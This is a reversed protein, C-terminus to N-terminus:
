GDTRFEGSRPDVWLHLISEGERDPDALREAQDIAAARGRDAIYAMAERDSVRAAVEEATGTCSADVAVVVGDARRVRRFVKWPDDGPGTLDLEEIIETM